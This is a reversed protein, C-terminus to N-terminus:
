LHILSAVRPPMEVTWAWLFAVVDHRTAVEIERVQQPRPAPTARAHALAEAALQPGRDSPKGMGAGVSRATLVAIEVERWREYKSADSWLAAMVPSAYRDM